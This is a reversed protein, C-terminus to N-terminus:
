VQVLIMVTTRSTFCYYMSKGSLSDEWWYVICVSLPMCVPKTRKDIIAQRIIYVSQVNTYQTYIIHINQM